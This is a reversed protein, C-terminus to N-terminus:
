ILEKRSPLICLTSGGMCASFEAYSTLVYSGEPLGDLSTNWWFKNGLLNGTFNFLQTYQAVEISDSQLYTGLDDATSLGYAM